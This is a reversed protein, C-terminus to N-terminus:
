VPALSPRKAVVKVVDRRNGGTLRISTKSSRRKVVSLDSYKGFVELSNIM